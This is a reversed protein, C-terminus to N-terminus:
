SRYSGNIEIYGHSLDCTWVTATGPGNGLSLTISFEKQQMVKKAREESFNADLGPKLIPEDNFSVALEEQVFTAGSRGAAGIIRGWNADEGNIATKVLPSNAVTMAAMRAEADSKAGTVRLEVFKTAGEGDVIILQALMTMVSRLAEGFLRADDSDSLVEPGKGSAMIAAMDNTSTDGDVTIANFSVANAASLLEQLLAPDIAADTGLFALMTAMNPCIMGSGKTIGAIRATGGSLKVDVAFAKPFTDTTMIAEAAEAWNAPGSAAKLTPVSATIKGIPLQQGIVGTSAVLVEGSDCGIANAVTEAMSEANKMGEAGTAANANGSNCVIARIRGKSTALANRSLEVPAACCLNTTSVSATSSPEDCLMLMLDKRKPKVGCNIGSLLFGEPWLTDGSAPDAFVPTM